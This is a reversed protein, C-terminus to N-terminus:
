DFVRPNLIIQLTKTGKFKGEGVLNIRDLPQSSFSERAQSGRRHKKHKKCSHLHSTVDNKRKMGNVEVYITKNDCSQNPMLLRFPWRLSWWQGRWGGGECADGTVFRVLFYTTVKM